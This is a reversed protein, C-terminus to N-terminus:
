YFFKYITLHTPSPPNVRLLTKHPAFIPCPLKGTMCSLTLFFGHTHPHLRWGEVRGCGMWMIPVSKLGVCSQYVRGQTWHKYPLSPLCREGIHFQVFEHPHFWGKAWEWLSCYRIPSLNMGGVVTYLVLRTSWTISAFRYNILLKM